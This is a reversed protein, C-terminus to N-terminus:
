LAQFLVIFLPFNFYTGLVAEPLDIFNSCERMVDCVFIYEFRNLPRFTLCPVLCSRSSFAALCKQIYVM